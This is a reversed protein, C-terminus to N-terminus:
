LGIIQDSQMTLRVPGQDTVAWTNEIGAAGKDPFVFKPELAIVMGPQIPIDFKGTLVPWEDLELGVGHGVFGVQDDEPGMFFRDLELKQAEKVAANYLQSCLVGPKAMDVFLNQIKLAAEHARRWEDPLRDLYFIRTQDSLYGDMAGVIDIFIPENERLQRYGPGNAVFPNPGPGTAPGDFFSRVAASPGALVSGFFIEANFARMRIIGQHGHRVFSRSIDAFVEMETRGAKLFDPIERFVKETMAATRKIKEIEFPSKIMRQSMILRSVDSIGEADAFISQYKKLTGAPLVDLEMGLVGSIRGAYREIKQKLHRLSHLEAIRNLPSEQLARPFYKNVLLVPEGRAPVFLHSKQSTGSFYYIDTNQVLLAGAYGGENLKEQFSDIRNKIEKEPISKNNDSSNM